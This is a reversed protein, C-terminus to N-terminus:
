QGIDHVLTYLTKMCNFFFLLFFFYLLDFLSRYFVVCFVFSQAVRVGSFRHTFEPITPLEQEVLAVGRTVALRYTTSDNNSRKYKKKKSNKKLQM